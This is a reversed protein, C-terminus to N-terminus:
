SGRLIMWYWLGKEFNWAEIWILVLFFVLVFVFVCICPAGKEPSSGLLRCVASPHRPVISAQSPPNKMTM